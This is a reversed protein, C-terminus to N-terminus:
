CGVSRAEAPAEIPDSAVYRLYRGLDDTLARADPYRDEPRLAMM